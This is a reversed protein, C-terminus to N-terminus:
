CLSENCMPCAPMNSRDASALCWRDICELHFTHRCRLERLVDGQKYDECCVPCSQSCSGCSRDTLVEPQMAAMQMQIIM